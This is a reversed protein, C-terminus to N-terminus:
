AVVAITTCSYSLLPLVIVRSSSGPRLGGVKVEKAQGLRLPEALGVQLQAIHFSSYLAFVEM